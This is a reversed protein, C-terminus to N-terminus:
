TKSKAKVDSVGSPDPRAKQRSMLFAFLLVQGQPYLDGSKLSNRIGNVMEWFQMNSAMKIEM